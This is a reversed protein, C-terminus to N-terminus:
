VQKTDKALKILEIAMQEREEPPAYIFREDLLEKFIYKRVSAQTIEKMVNMRMEALFDVYSEYEVGFDNELKKRIKSALGPSAGSTSVAMVLKGRRVISPVIYNCLDPRDVINVWLQHEKAKEYVAHNVRRLNTAAIILTYGSVEQDSFMEKKWTLRNTVGWNEITATVEPSIVTIVAGSELLSAIKREAVGGGGVVLCPRGDLNVMMPFHPKM